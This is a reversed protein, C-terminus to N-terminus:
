HIRVGSIEPHIKVGPLGMFIKPWTYAGNTVGNKVITPPEARPGVKNDIKVPASGSRQVM